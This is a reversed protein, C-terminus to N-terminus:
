LYLCLGPFSGLWCAEVLWDRPMQPPKMEQGLGETEKLKKKRVEKHFGTHENIYILSSLTIDIEKLLGARV